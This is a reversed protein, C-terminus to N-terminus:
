KGCFPSLEGTYYLNLEHLARTCAIYLIQRDDPSNFNKKSVDAVHVADFELGKAFYFPTIIVGAPFECTEADFLTCKMRGSLAGYLKAAERETRTVVAITNYVETQKAIASAMKDAMDDFDSCKTFEPAKGHREFLETETDDILGAAFSGIEYTSRYSKKLELLKVGRGLVKPLMELIQMNRVHSTQQRDGLITMPCDFLERIMAYQILTYDQMEDIILHKIARHSGSGFLLLKLFLMPFVDEYPIPGEAKVGEVNCDIGKETLAELFEIYLQKVERTRYLSEFRDRIIEARIPDMDKDERAEVQGMVYDAIASLRILVPTDPFREFFMEAIEDGSVKVGKSQIDRFNVIDSELDLVFGYIEKLFDDSQKYDIMEKKVALVGEPENLLMEEHSFRSEFATIDKLEREAYEDFSMEVIAEEGLEPLIGSIYDSFIPNPTLIMVNGSNLEKRKHYLLYAIRHMAVSTKGSGAAGQVVLIRDSENRIISNQERQITAVITKLRANANTGLERMLIDDDIKMDNEFFYELKGNKISYQLKHTIEGETRGAPAMFFAPGKDFDYFLSAIPARWDYIVPLFSKGATFSALGIYYSEDEDEGKFLFDVCAFYPSKLLREYTQRKYMKEAAMNIESQIMQRNTFHEYGFEDFESISEWFYKKMGVIEDQKDSLEVNMSDIEKKILEKTESLKKLEEQESHSM